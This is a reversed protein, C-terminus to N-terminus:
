SVFAIHRWQCHGSISPLGLSPLCKRTGSGSRTRGPLRRM